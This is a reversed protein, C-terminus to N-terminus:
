QRLLLVMLEITLVQGLSFRLSSLAKTLHNEVTKTSINLQIAIQKHSLNEERSLKYVTRCKDPLQDVIEAIKSHLEKYELDNYGPGAEIRECVQDFIDARVKGSKIQRYVEYRVAAFLYASLSTKIQIQQRNIWVKLFVEQIIDECAQGDKLMAYSSHYLPQWYRKYIIELALESGKKILIFLQNDDNHDHLHM